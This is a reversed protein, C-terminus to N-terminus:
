LTAPAVTDEKEGRLVIRLAGDPLPRQLAKADSWPASLWTEWEAPETLIAPMAKPHVARVEANPTTTLFGFLDATVPGEKVKRTSTWSAWLGAFFALPRTEDFAFWVPPRSGDALTENEAFSTFPVLCRHEPGLWPRWHSSSTQRINTVGRDVKKGALYQPPTPMGWRAMVLERGEGANRVIPAPYDPYIGPLPPMNGARDELGAFLRRMAGQSRTMSYLNCMPSKEDQPRGFPLTPSTYVVSDTGDALLLDPFRAVFRHATEPARFYVAVADRSIGLASAAHFAYEGRGVEQDLWRYLDDFQREFGGEPVLLKVRVPFAEDDIRRQPTSRRTM